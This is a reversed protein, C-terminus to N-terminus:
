RRPPPQRQQGEQALRVVLNAQLSRVNDRSVYEGRIDVNPNLHYGVGGGLLLGDDDGFDIGLRGLAHFRDAIPYTVVGAAWLGRARTELTVDPELQREFDGSTFWGAEVSIRAAGTELNTFEYGGFAQFGVSDDFNSLSNTNIGGGGYWQGGAYWDQALASGSMAALAAAALGTVAFRKLGM